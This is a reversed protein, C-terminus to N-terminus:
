FSEMMKQERRENTASKKNSLWTSEKIDRYRHAAAPRHHHHHAASHLLLFDQSAWRSRQALYCQLSRNSFFKNSFLISGTQCFFADMVRQADTIPSDTRSSVFHMKFPDFTYFFHGTINNQHYESSDVYFTLHWNHYWTKNWIQLKQQFIFVQAKFPRQFIEEWELIDAPLVLETTEGEFSWEVLVLPPISRIPLSKDNCLLLWNFCFCFMVLDSKM